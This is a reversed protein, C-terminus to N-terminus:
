EIIEIIIEKNPLVNFRIVGNRNNFTGDSESGEIRIIRADSRYEITLPQDYIDEDLRHTVRLFILNKYSETVVTSEKKERLYKYVETEPAIWYDSNRMLRVQQEFVDKQTFLSAKKQESIQHPIEAENDFLHHYVFITWRNERDKLLKDMGSQSLDTTTVAYNVGNFVLDKFDEGPLQRAFVAFSHARRILDAKDSHLSEVQSETREGLLYLDDRDVDNGPLPQLAIEQDIAMERTETTSLRKMMADGEFDLVEPSNNLLEPIIGFTASFGYKKLVPM